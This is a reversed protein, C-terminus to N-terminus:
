HIAQDGDKEDDFVPPLDGAIERIQSAVSGAEPKGKSQLAKLYDMNLGNDALMARVAQFLAPTRKEPNKLDEMMAKLQLAHIERLTDDLESLTKPKNSM